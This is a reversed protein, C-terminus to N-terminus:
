PGLKAGCRPCFEPRTFINPHIATRGCADCFKTMRLNLWGVLIVGPVVFYLAEGGPDALYVYGVFLAATGVIFPPRLRRKLAANRSLTFLAFGALGLVVWLGLFLTFLDDPNM